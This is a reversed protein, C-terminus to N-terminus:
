DKGVLVINNETKPDPSVYLSDAGLSDKISCVAGM